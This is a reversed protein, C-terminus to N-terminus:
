VSHKGSRTKLSRGKERIWRFVQQSLELTESLSRTLRELTQEDPVGVERWTSWLIPSAPETHRNGHEMADVADSVNQSARTTRAVLDLIEENLRTTAVGDKKLRAAVVALNVAMLRAREGLARVSEVLGTIDAAVPFGETEHPRDSGAGSNPADNQTM